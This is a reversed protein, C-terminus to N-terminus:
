RLENLKDLAEQKSAINELADEDIETTCLLHSTVPKTQGIRHARDEAQELIAMSTPPELFITDTAEILNLGYRATMISLLLIDAKGAHWDSLIQLREKMSLAGHYYLVKRGKAALQEQYYDLVKTYQSFVLLKQDAPFQLLYELKSPATSSLYQMEARIEPKNKFGAKKLRATTMRYAKELERYRDSAAFPLNVKKRRKEPLGLEDKSVYCLIPKVLEFLEDLNKYGKCIYHGWYDFSWEGYYREFTTRATDELMNFYKLMSFFELPNNLVPTGSLAIRMQDPHRVIEHLGKTQEAKWGKASQVEDVVIADYRVANIKEVIDVSRLAEINILHVGHETNHEELWKAKKVNGAGTDEGVISFGLEDALGHKKADKIWEEQLNSQGCVILVKHLDNAKIMKMTTYSKGMGQPFNVFINMRSLSFKVADDQYGFRGETERVFGEKDDYITEDIRQVVTEGTIRSFVDQTCEYEQTDKHYAAFPKHKKLLDLTDESFGKVYWSYRTPMKRSKAKRVIM